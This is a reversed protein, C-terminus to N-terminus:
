LAPPTGPCDTPRGGPAIAAAIMPLQEAPATLLAALPLPLPSGIAASVAASIATAPPIGPPPEAVVVAGSVKDM